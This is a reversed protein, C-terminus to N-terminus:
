KRFNYKYIRIFNQNVFKRKYFYKKCLFEVWVM